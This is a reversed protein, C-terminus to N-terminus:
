ASNKKIVEFSKRLTLASTYLLLQWTQEEQKILQYARHFKEYLHIGICTLVEEQAIDITKAHRERRSKIFYLHKTQFKSNIAYYDNFFYFSVLVSVRL